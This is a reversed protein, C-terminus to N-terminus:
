IIMGKPQLVHKYYGRLGELEYSVLKPNKQQERCVRLMFDDYREYLEKTSIKNINGFYEEISIGFKQSMKKIYKISRDRDECEEAKELTDYHKNCRKCYFIGKIPKKEEITKLDKILDIIMITEKNGSLVYENFAKEVDEFDYNSLRKTWEELVGKTLSFSPYINKIAILLMDTQDISM